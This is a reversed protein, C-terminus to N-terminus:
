ADIEMTSFRFPSAFDCLRPFSRDRLSLVPTTIPWEMGFSDWLVGTDLAPDYESSVNYVLTAPGRSTFFGHAVGRPMYAASTDEANLEFVAFKGFAPSDLRLDLAVDLVTGQLCYVLKAGDAPPMQFHMGRLVDIESTSYFSEAFSAELGLELFAKSQFTKIFSGRADSRNVYELRFCGPIATAKLKM